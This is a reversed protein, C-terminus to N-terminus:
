PNVAIQPGTARSLAARAPFFGCCYWTVAYEGPQPTFAKGLSRTGSLRRGPLGPLRLALRSSAM